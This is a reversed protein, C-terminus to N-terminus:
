FKSGCTNCKYTKSVHGAALLGFTVASVAKNTMSIKHIQSSSCIPCRPINEYDKVWIKRERPDVYDSPRKSIIHNKMTNGCSGCIDEFRSDILLYEGNKAIPYPSFSHAGCKACTTGVIETPEGIEYWWYDIKDEDFSDNEGLTFGEFRLEAENNVNETNDVLSEGCVPCITTDGLLEEKFITECAECIIKRGM